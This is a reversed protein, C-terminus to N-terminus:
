EKSPRVKIKEQNPMKTQGTLCKKCTPRARAFFQFGM